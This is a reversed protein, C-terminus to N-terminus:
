LNLVQGIFRVPQERLDILLPLRAEGFALAFQELTVTTFHLIFASSPLREKHDACDRCDASYSEDCRVVSENCALTTFVTNGMLGSIKNTSRGTPTLIPTIEVDIHNAEELAHGVKQLRNSASLRLM